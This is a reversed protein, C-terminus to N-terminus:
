IKRAEEITKETVKAKVQQEQIIKANYKTDELKVVLTDSDLVTKSDSNNLNILLDQEFM